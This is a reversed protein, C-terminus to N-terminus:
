SPPIIRPPPVTHTVPLSPHPLPTRPIRCQWRLRRTQARGGCIGGGLRPVLCACNAPKRFGQIKARSRAAQAADRQTEDIRIMSIHSLNATLSSCLVCRVYTGQRVQTMSVEGAIQETREHFGGWFQGLLSRWQLRGGARALMAAPASPCCAGPSSHSGALTVVCVHSTLLQASTM